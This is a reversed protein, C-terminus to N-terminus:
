HEAPKWWWAVPTTESRAAALDIFFWKRNQRQNQRPKVIKLGFKRDQENLGLFGYRKEHINFTDSAGLTVGQPSPPAPLTPALPSEIPRKDGTPFISVVAKM